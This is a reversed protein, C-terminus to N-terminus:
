VPGIEYGGEPLHILFRKKQKVLSHLRKFYIRQRNLWFSSTTQTVYALGFAEQHGMAEDGSMFGELWKGIDGDVFCKLTDTVEELTNGTRDMWDRLTCAPHVVYDPELM